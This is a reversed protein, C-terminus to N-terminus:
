AGGSDGVGLRAAAGACMATGAENPVGGQYKWVELGRLADACAAPGAELAGRM